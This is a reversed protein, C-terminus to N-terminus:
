ISYVRQRACARIGPAHCRLSNRYGNTCDAAYAIASRRARLQHLRFQLHAKRWSFCRAGMNTAVITAVVQEKSLHGLQLDRFVFVRGETGLVTAPRALFHGIKLSKQKLSIRTATSGQQAKNFEPTKADEIKDVTDGDFGEAGRNSVRSIM